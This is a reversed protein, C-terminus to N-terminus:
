GCRPLGGCGNALLWRMFDRNYGALGQDHPGPDELAKPNRVNVAGEPPEDPNGFTAAQAVTAAAAVGSAALISRRSLNTM